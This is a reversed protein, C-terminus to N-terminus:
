YLKIKNKNLLDLFLEKKMPSILKINNDLIEIFQKKQIIISKQDIIDIICIIFLIYLYNNLKIRREYEPILFLIWLFSIYLSMIITKMTLNIITNNKFFNIVYILIYSTIIFCIFTVITSEDLTKILYSYLLYLLHIELYLLFYRTKKLKDYVKIIKKKSYKYQDKPAIYLSNLHDINITLFISKNWILIFFLIQKKIM